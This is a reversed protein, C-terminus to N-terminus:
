SDMTSLAALHVQMSLLLILLHMDFKISPHWLRQQQKKGVSHFAVDRSMTAVTKETGKGISSHPCSVSDTSHRSIVSM